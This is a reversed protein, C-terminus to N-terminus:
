PERRPKDTATYVQMGVTCLNLDFGRIFPSKSEVRARDLFLEALDRAFREPIARAKVEHHPPTGPNDRAQDNHLAVYGHDKLLRMMDVAVIRSTAHCPLRLTLDAYVGREIDEQRVAKSSQKILRELFTGSDQGM